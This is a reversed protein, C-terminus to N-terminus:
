FFGFTTTTTPQEAISGGACDTSAMANKASGKQDSHAAVQMSAAFAKGDCGAPKAFAAPAIAACAMASAIALTAIKRM